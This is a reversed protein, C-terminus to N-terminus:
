FYDNDICHQYFSKYELSVQERTIGYDELAEFTDTIDGTIQAEYNALERHIISKIGNEAIDQAIGADNILAFGKLVKEANDKPLILGSGMSVYTVGDVKRENLQSQSFAFFAGNTELLETQKESTYDHLTKM